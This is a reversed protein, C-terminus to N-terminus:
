AARAGRGCIPCNPRRVVPGAWVSEPRLPTLFVHQERATLAAGSASRILYPTLLLGSWFSVFAVTPILAQNDDDDRPHLCYACAFGEEHFSAMANWHATAGVGLWSPKMQQVLWRTPIHDAGVLVRASLPALGVASREDYRVHATRLAFGDSEFTRLTEAKAESVASRRLLVYRNLNSYDSTTNEIM